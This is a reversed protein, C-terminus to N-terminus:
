PSLAAPFGCRTEGQSQGICWKGKGVQIQIRESSYVMIMRMFGERLKILGEPDQPGRVWSSVTCLAAEQWTKSNECGKCDRGM